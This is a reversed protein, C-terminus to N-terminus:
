TKIEFLTRKKLCVHSCEELWSALRWTKLMINTNQHFVFIPFHVQEIDDNTHLDPDQESDVEHFREPLPGYQICVCM